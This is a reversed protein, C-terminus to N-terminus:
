VSEHGAVASLTSGPLAALFMVDHVVDAAMTQAGVLLDGSTGRAARNESSPDLGATLATQLLVAHIRVVSDLIEEALSTLLKGLNEKRARERGSSAQTRDGPRSSWEECRAPPNVCSSLSACATTALSSPELTEAREGSDAVLRGSSTRSQTTLM